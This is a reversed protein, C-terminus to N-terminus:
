VAPELDPLYQRRRSWPKVLLMQVVGVSREVFGGECYSLYYRWMREFREPYGLARVQALRSEFRERWSALTLAYSPGIDELHFLKLDTERAAAGLMASVSPIFSGPFIFRQIFDVNKLAQAYRHDEITIAQILGMGDPKLLSSCKAFYTDLYRAGIAEIMEISVLKDYSGELDRYDSLLVEVRDGLGAAAVRAAAREHQERSITATTVKCGYQAAAHLAFGGWGSGIEVVSDDPRLDLKQCIRDLKRRSAQELPERADRFLASSYMLNDDLFLEFLANGLDYHAAINRRSGRRSNRNLGHFGRLLMGGFRALGTEMRDLQERNQVFIRVLTTLEDCEWLGDMYAEGVGVSGGLAVLRYMAPDNVRVTARLTERGDEPKGCLIRTAGEVITIECGRLEALLALMRRRFFALSRSPTAAAVDDAIPPVTALEAETNM